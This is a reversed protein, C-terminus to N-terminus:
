FRLPISGRLRTTLKVEQLHLVQGRRQPPRLSCPNGARLEQRPLLQAGEPPEPLSVEGPSHHLQFLTSVQAAHGIGPARSLDYFLSLVGKEPLGLEPTAAPALEEFDLQGIFTMPGKEGM